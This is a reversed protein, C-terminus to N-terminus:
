RVEQKVWEIDPRRVKVSDRYGQAMARAWDTDIAEYRQATAIREEVTMTEAITTAISYYQKLQAIEANSRIKVQLTQAAPVEVVAEATKVAYGEAETVRAWADRVIQRGSPGELEGADYEAQVMEAYERLETVTMESFQKSM